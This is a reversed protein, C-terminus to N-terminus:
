VYASRDASESYSDYAAQGLYYVGLFYLTAYDECLDEFFGGDHRSYCHSLMASFFSIDCDTKSDLHYEYCLDHGNCAETFDFVGPISDPVHSCGDVAGSPDTCTRPRNRVYVYSAVYPDTVRSPAPDTQTFRGLHTDYQRARLHYTDTFSDYYEGTFRMLNEPAGVDHQTHTRLDGFAEYGYEWQRAGTANTVDTVSGIGDHHYYFVGDSTTM